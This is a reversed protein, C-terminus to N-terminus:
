PGETCDAVELQSKLVKPLYEPKRQKCANDAIKWDIEKNNIM